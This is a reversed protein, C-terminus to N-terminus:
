SRFSLLGVLCADLGLSYGANAWNDERLFAAKGNMEYAGGEIRGGM